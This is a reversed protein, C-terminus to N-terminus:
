GHDGCRPDDGDFFIRADYKKEYLNKRGRPTSVTQVGTTVQESKMLCVHGSKPLGCRGCRYPRRPKHSRRKTAPAAPRPPSEADAVAPAEAAELLTLLTEAARDETPASM